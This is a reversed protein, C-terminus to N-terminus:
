FRLARKRDSGGAVGVWSGHADLEEIAQALKGCRLPVREYGVVVRKEAMLKEAGQLPMSTDAFAAAPYRSMEDAPVFM